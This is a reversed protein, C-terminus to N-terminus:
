TSAAAAARWLGPYETVFGAANVTLERRFTGGASEYVYTEESARAYEQELVEVTLEPFRVWAARVAARDGVRLNLRRIPLLNTSPSFGLDIDICGHLAPVIAGNVAWSDHDSRFLDVSVREAGLYGRIRAIRTRWAADCEIRYELRCPRGGHAVLVLGSLMWGAGEARLEAVESGPLDLRAWMVSHTTM